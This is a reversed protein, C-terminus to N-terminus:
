IENGIFDKNRATNFFGDALVRDVKEGVIPVHRAFRELHPILPQRYNTASYNVVFADIPVHSHPFGIFSAKHAWYKKNQNKVVVGCGYDTVEWAHECNDKDPCSFRTRYTVFLRTLRKTRNMEPRGLRLVIIERLMPLISFLDQNVKVMGETLDQAAMKWKMQDWIRYLSMIQDFQEIKRLSPSNHQRQKTEEYYYMIMLNKLFLLNLLLM